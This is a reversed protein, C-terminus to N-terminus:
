AASTGAAWIWVSMLLGKVNKGNIVDTVDMVDMVFREGGIIGTKPM